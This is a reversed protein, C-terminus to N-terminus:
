ENELEKPISEFKAFIPYQKVCKPCNVKLEAIPTQISQQNDSIPKQSIANQLIVEDYEKLLSGAM